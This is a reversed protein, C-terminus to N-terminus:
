VKEMQLGSVNSMAGVLWGRLLRSDPTVQMMSLLLRATNMNEKM